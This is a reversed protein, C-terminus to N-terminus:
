FLRSAAAASAGVSLQYGSEVLADEFAALFRLVTEPTAGAGMIGVRWIKGALPGLGAGIEINSKNLLRLRVAAEGAAGLPDPVRVANLNWLREPEPPLLDLGIAALGVAFALHCQEHRRWRAELGEEEVMLLAERMALALSSCLTHHYKRRVWYDELLRLDLYFSRCPVLRELARPGFTVPAMGSPAGLGKQSCSYCADIQWGEIEVPVAGLSTVADVIVVADHERAIAAVEKVPNRV